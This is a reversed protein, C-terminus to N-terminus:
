GHVVRAAERSTWYEEILERYRKVMPGWAFNQRVYEAGNAGLRRALQPRTLLLDLCLEFEAYSEFYLGGNARAAHDRTVACGGHVLCPTGAAWAEMVVLSFSEHTSPQCLVTAAAYADRKDQLSVYGLDIVGERGAGVPQGGGILVLDCVSGRRQQYRGMFDVLLEVNKGADKRGAYLVFPRTLGHRARFREGDYAFDSEVGQGVVVAQPAPGGTLAELTRLEPESLMLLRRASTLMTQIRPLRAYGEDHLCPILYADGGCARMGDYTTGYLYPTFIFLYEDRHAAIFDTMALSNINNQLFAAEEEQTVRGGAMLKLNAADFAARDRKGVAFRRVLVGNETDPGAPLVNRSWDSRFDPVRTTLVEVPLGDAALREATERAATEAGGTAAAGYWPTVFATKRAPRESAM